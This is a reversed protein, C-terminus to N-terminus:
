RQPLFQDMAEKQKRFDRGARFREEDTQLIAYKEDYERKLYGEKIRRIWRKIEMERVEDTAEELDQPLEEMYLEMLRVYLEPFQQELEEIHIRQFEETSFQLLQEYIQRFHPTHFEIIHLFERVLAIPTRLHLLVQLIRKEDRNEAAAPAVSNLVPMKDHNPSRHLTKAAKKLIDKESIHVLEALYSITLNRTMEDQIAEILPLLEEIAKIRGQVNRGHKVLCQQVLYEFVPHDEQLLESLKEIGQNLLFSDPDEGPPLVVVSADMKNSLFLPCSRWAAAQGAQDGDLLLIAKDAYRRAFNVHEATLSTGCTAVAHKLGCEHLRIVDFYGEVLILQKKQKIADKGEYFGYLIQSKHYYKTDASNLYKPPQEADISRGGFGICRGQIDRIPFIIRNRFTDFPRESKQSIKIVGAQLLEKQSFGQKRLHLFLLQWEDPVFGLQFTQWASFPIVRKQLYDGGPCTNAQQLLFSHYFKSAQRLAQLIRDDPKSKTSLSEELPIGFRNALETVAEIFSLKDFDRVFQISNGGKGCGFCYFFGRQPNVSFSPTKETHFPCLARYNAGIRKLQIGRDSVVSLIDAAQIVKEIFDASFRM